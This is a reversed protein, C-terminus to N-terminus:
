RVLLSLTLVHPSPGWSIASVKVRRRKCTICGTRSKKHAKKVRLHQWSLLPQLQGGPARNEQESENAYTCMTSPAPAIHPMKRHVVM